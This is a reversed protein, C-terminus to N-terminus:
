EPHSIIPNVVSLKKKPNIASHWTIQNQPRVGDATPKSFHGRVFFAISVSHVLSIVIKECPAQPEAKIQM